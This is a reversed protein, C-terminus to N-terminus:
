SPSGPMAGSSDPKIFGILEGCRTAKCDPFSACSSSESINPSRIRGGSKFARDDGAQRHQGIGTHRGRWSRSSLAVKSNRPNVEISALRLLKARDKPATGPFTDLSGMISFM